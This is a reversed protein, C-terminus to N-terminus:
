VPVDTPEVMLNFVMQEGIDTMHMVPLYRGNHFFGRFLKMKRVIDLRGKHIGQYRM